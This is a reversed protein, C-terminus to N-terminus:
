LGHTMEQQWRHIARATALVEQRHAGSDSALAPVEAEMRTFDFDPSRTATINVLRSRAVSSTRPRELHLRRCVSGIAARYYRGLVFPGHGGFALLEATNDILYELGRGQATPAPRPSGFRGNAMWLLMGGTILVQLLVFVLPVRFFSRFVSPSVEHGHLTEDFVVPGDARRLANIIKLMIAANNGKSLGHNALLDPDSLILIENTYYDIDLTDKTMILRGLLTGRDCAILPEINVAEILQLEDVFPRDPWSGAQWQLDRSHGQGRLIPSDIGLLKLPLSAQESPVLTVSGLHLPQTPDPAGTRKPLVLLVTPPNEVMAYFKETRRREQTILDPEALILVGGHGTKLGSNSRSALVGYGRKELLEKFGRHGLASYSFVDTGPSRVVGIEEQFVSITLGAVLSLVCLGVLIFMARRSFPGQSM